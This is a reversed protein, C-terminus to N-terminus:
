STGNGNDIEEIAWCAIKQLDPDGKEAIKKLPTIAVDTKLKGLTEIISWQVGQDADHLGAILAPVGELAGMDGLAEAAAGRVGSFEDGLMRIIHDVAKLDGLQKLAWVARWRIDTVEDDLAEVLRPYAAEAKHSGLAYVARWRVEPDTDIAAQMLYEIVHDGQYKGLLEVAVQRVRSEADDALRFVLTIHVQEISEKLLEVIRIKERRGAHGADLYLTLVPHWVKVDAILNKKEKRWDAPVMSLSVHFEDIGGDDVPVSPVVEEESKQEKEKKTGFLWKLM